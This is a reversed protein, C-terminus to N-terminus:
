LNFPLVIGFEGKNCLIKIPLLIINYFVGLTLVDPTTQCFVIFTDKSVKNNYM